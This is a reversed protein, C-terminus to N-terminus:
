SPTASPAARRTEPEEGLSRRSVAGRALRAQRWGPGILGIPAGPLDRRGATEETREVVQACDGIAFVAPDTWSRLDNDVVIGSATRLGALM